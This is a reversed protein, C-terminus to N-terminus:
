ECSKPVPMFSLTFVLTASICVILKGSTICIKLSRWLSSLTLIHRKYSPVLSTNNCLSGFVMCLNVSTKGICQLCYQMSFALALVSCIISTSPQKIDVPYRRQWIAHLVIFHHYFTNHQMLLSSAMHRDHSELSSPGNGPEMITWQTV